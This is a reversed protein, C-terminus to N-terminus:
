KGRLQFRGQRTAAPFASSKATLAAYGSPNRFSGRRQPEGVPSITPKGPTPPAHRLASGAFNGVQKLFNTAPGGEFAAIRVLCLGIHASGLAQAMEDTRESVKESLPRELR